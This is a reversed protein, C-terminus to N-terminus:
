PRTSAPMPEDLRVTVPMGQRLGADADNVVVRVRYVLATRLDPMEVNKPTFEATPSVFGVRGHYPRDPRSDTYVRVSAGPAMRGLDPEGVYARVWVPSPLTLTLAPSGAAVIAGPEISRTTVIADSPALLVADALHQRAQDSSATARAENAEAEAIEQHRYGRKFEDLAAEGAALRAQAQDRGAVAEDYVRQAVAGTGHLEQQRNFQQEANALAARREAVAAQAQAIDGTRYGSKLLQVRAAIANANARAENAALELPVTDLRALEQGVQVRDGEDVAVSAVRGAVRFGLTVARIDVNGYVVLPGGRGDHKVVYWAVGAVVAAAAILLGVRQKITITTM